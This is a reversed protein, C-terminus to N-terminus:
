GQGVAAPKLAQATVTGTAGSGAPDVQLNLAVGLSHRTRDSVQAQVFGGQLRLVRGTWRTAAGQPGLTLQGSSFQVGQALPRGTLELDFVLPRSGAIDGRISVRSNATGAIARTTRTAAITGAFGASEPEAAVPSTAATSAARAWGPQLPGALAWLGVGLPVAVLGAVAAWRGPSEPRWNAALRWSVAACVSALAFVDLAVMWWIRADSGSGLGHMLAIPWCAYAAWHVARWVRYGLRARVISTVALALLLDFAVAGLGVWLTRYPSRFPVIADVFGIPVFGDIVTTTVHLVIFVLILLSINRHLRELVFRPWHRTEFRVSTVVGLVMSATLLLLCVIGTGRSAFWLAKTASSAIIPSM